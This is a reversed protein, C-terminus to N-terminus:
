YSWQIKIRDEIVRNFTSRSKYMHIVTDGSFDRTEDLYGARSLNDLVKKPLEVEITLKPIIEKM